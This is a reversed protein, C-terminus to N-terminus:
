RLLELVDTPEFRKPIKLSDFDRDISVLLTLNSNKMVAVHLADRASLNPHKDLLGCASLVDERTVPLVEAVIDAAARAARTADKIDSRRARVRLIEQLVESSTVADLTGQGVAALIARCPERHPSEGGIAYLFINSDLFLRAM